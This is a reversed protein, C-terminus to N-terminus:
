PVVPLVLPNTVVVDGQPSVLVGVFALELIQSPISSLGSLLVQPDETGARDLIGDFGLIPLSGPNQEVRDTLWDRNLPVHVGNLFHGPETGSTGALVQYSWGDRGSDSHIRLQFDNTKNRALDFESAVLTPGGIPVAPLTLSSPNAGGFFVDVRYDRFIPVAHLVTIGSVTPPRHWALNEVELRLRSGKALKIAMFNLPIEIHRSGGPVERLSIQGGTIYRNSPEEFLAAHIQLDADASFIELSVTGEGMLLQDSSLPESIHTFGMLPVSNQLTEPSPLNDVYDDITFIGSPLHEIRSSSQIAPPQSLLQDPGLYWILDSSGSPPFVDMERSDLLTSPSLYESTESPLIAFHFPAWTDVGNDAQKLYYHFWKVRRRNLFEDELFNIPTQHGGTTLNLVKNSGPVLSDWHEMASNAPIQNDDYVLTAMIQTASTQLLIPVELELDFTLRYIASYDEARVLPDILAIFSPLYHALPTPDYVSRIRRETLSNGGPLAAALIDCSENFSVVAQIVPFPATRWQNLPPTKGSHAAGFWSHVGGQGKGTLGVRNIDILGPFAATAGEIVEFLDLRERLGVGARGYVSPDNLAMADGQGRVDYAVTAFGSRAMNKAMKAVVQRKSGSGHIFVILPWGGPNPPVTPTFVDMLTLYGDTLSLQVGLFENVNGDVPPDPNGRQALLPASLLFFIALTVRTTSHPRM